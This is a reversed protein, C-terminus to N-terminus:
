KILETFSKKKPTHTHKFRAVTFTDPFHTHTSSVAFSKHMLDSGANVQM